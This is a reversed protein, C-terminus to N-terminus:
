GRPIQYPNRKEKGDGVHAWGRMESLSRGRTARGQSGGGLRAKVKGFDSGPDGQSVDQVEDAQHSAHAGPDSARGTDPGGSKRAM